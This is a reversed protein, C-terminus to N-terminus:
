GPARPLPRPGSMASERRPGLPVHHCPMAPFPRRTAIPPGSLPLRGRIAAWELPCMRYTFTLGAPSGLLPPQVPIVHWNDHLMCPIPLDHPSSPLQSGAPSLWSPSVRSKRRATTGQGDREAEVLSDSPFARRGRPRRAALTVGQHSDSPATPTRVGRKAGAFIPRVLSAHFPCPLMRRTMTYRPSTSALVLSYAAESSGCAPRARAGTPPRV